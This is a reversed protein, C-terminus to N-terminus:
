PRPTGSEVADVVAFPEADDDDVLLQRQHRQQRDGFVDEEAVLHSLVADDVPRLSRLRAALQQALDAELLGRRRQM